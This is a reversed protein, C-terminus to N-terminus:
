RVIVGPVVCAIWLKQQELVARDPLPQVDVVLVINKGPRRFAAPCDADVQLGVAARVRRKRPQCGLEHAIRRSHFFQIVVQQNGAADDFLEVPLVLAADTHFGNQLLGDVQQVQAHLVGRFKKCRHIGGGRVNFLREVLVIRAAVVHNCGTDPVRMDVHGPEPGNFLRAFLGRAAKGRHELEHLLIGVICEHRALRLEILEDLLAVRLQILFDLLADFFPAPLRLAAHPEFRVAVHGRAFREHPLKQVALPKEFLFEAHVAFNEPQGVYEAIRNRQRLNEFLAADVIEHGGFDGPVLDILQGAVGEPPAPEVSGLHEGVENRRQERVPFAAVYLGSVVPLQM